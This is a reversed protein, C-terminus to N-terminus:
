CFVIRADFEEASSYLKFIANLETQVKRGCKQKVPEIFKFMELIDVCDGISHFGDCDSHNIFVLLGRWADIYEDELGSPKSFILEDEFQSYDPSLAKEKELFNLAKHMKLTELDPLVHEATEADKRELTQALRLKSKLERLRRAFLIQVYARITHLESCSMCIKCAPVPKDGSRVVKLVLSM